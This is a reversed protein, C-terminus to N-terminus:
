AVAVAGHLVGILDYIPATNGNFMTLYDTSTFPKHNYLDTLTIDGNQLVYSVISRLFDQQKSNFNYKALYTNLLKETAETDMGVISRVFPGFALGKSLEDYDQKTGLKDCLIDELEKLDNDDLPILNRIKYIAGNEANESLYDIVRQKYNKFSPKISGVGGEKIILTDAFKSSVSGVVDRDLYQILDRLEVRIKELKEISITNWYEEKTISEIFDKKAKVQPITTKDLLATAINTVKTIAKTYDNEGIIEELEMNLIWLDFIHSKEEMSDAEILPTLYNKIEKVDVVSIYNWTEDLSYKDVYKLVTKVNILKRNFGRIIKLIESKYKQYFGVHEENNQHEAKQLELVLDVKTEFIKQSISLAQKPTKGEPHEGFFEFVDCFDFIYFGQKNTYVTSNEEETKKEFWDKCPSLVDLDKCLRTGRGIMQWFKIKSFVRKFFVLNTVEPVDVGTDMMDVSVAIRFDNDPIEFEEILDGAYNVYNDILKCYNNGKEPYLIRFREVIRQAHEHKVAFIITKGLVEGSQVHLGESMITNLVIDITDDNLVRKYFEDHDIEAPLNGKEDSFLNEYEEKEDDPLKDYKLGNKLLNTTRDFVHFDVLFGENVATQYDYSYTPEGKPLDFIDYTTLLEDFEKPTATLGLLLSDFYNFISRYKNYITRHCEDLIILDFHGIGYKRNDGDITNILTQYTSLTVQADYDRDAENEESLVCVTNSPLFKVFNAKAQNVLATRDALFLVHKAWGYKNLVDVLSIAFRTKGTGTAMVVLAKRRRKEFSECVSTVAEQIFPRDSITQDIHANVVDSSPQKNFLFKLENKTYFGFIRREPYGQNDVINVIYGNTTFIIPRRGWKNEIANAYLEAQHYGKVPDVSTKKAEVVALPMGDDDFLIYDARGEDSNNPMGELVIETCAIGPVVVGNIDHVKWGAEKLAEDIYLKRTEAETIDQTAKLEISDDISEKYKSLSESDVKVEESSVEQVPTLEVPKADYFSAKFKDTEEIVGLFKLIGTVADHLAHLCSVAQKKTVEEGHAGNNGIKRVFHMSSLLPEDLYASFSSDDILEFLSAMVNYHGYKAVYFSKIISELAKRSSAASLDPKEFVLEEADNCFKSLQTFDTLTKLFDFNM